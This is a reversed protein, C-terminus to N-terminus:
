PARPLGQPAAVAASGRGLAAALAGPALDTLPVLSAPHGPAAPRLDRQWWSVDHWTGLKWGVARYVGVPAFGLREHLAVSAPNPLAIGGMAQRYGQAALVALLGGYLTRGVGRGRAAEALYISTEVSWDYAPRGSFRGAYAYGAVHGGLEAVLWPHHPQRDVIRSAMEDESPVALEFSTASTEVVPGYIARVAGADDATALRMSLLGDDGM